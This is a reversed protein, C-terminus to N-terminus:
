DKLGSTLLCGPWGPLLGALSPLGPLCGALSPLGAPCTAQYGAPKCNPLNYNGDSMRITCGIQARLAPLLGVAPPCCAPLLGAFTAACAPLVELRRCGPASAGAPGWCAAPGLRGALMGYDLDVLSLISTQPSGSAEQVSIHLFFFTCGM